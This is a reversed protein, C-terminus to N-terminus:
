FLDTSLYREGTDALLVVINKASTRKAIQVAGCLAAGSSIGVLLGEKTASKRAFEYADNDSVTIVEDVYEDVFNQPVFGAGIGQIKHKGAVGSTIVPSNEPEVGVVKIENNQEKLYKGVGSVTGGTGVGAVFVDVKGDLDSYIEPGTTTYHALINDSNEFQGCIFSNKYESKLEEAKDIAGQMGKAGDTLVVNAGFSSMLKRREISMTDPMVIIAKLGMQACIMSIGIGTNGSTPEIIVTKQDIEGKEIASKIMCLAVRDKVSGGPNTKEVKAYIHSDLNYEKELNKLRVLPTSGILKTVGDYVKAM